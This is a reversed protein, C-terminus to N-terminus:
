YMRTLNPTSATIKGEDDALLFYSHAVRASAMDPGVVVNARYHNSWLHRVQMLQMNGPQGLAALVQKGLAALVNPLQRADGEAPQKEQPKPPM